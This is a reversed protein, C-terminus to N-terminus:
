HTWNVILLHRFFQRGCRFEAGVANNQIKSEKAEYDKKINEILQPTQLLAVIIALTVTLWELASM